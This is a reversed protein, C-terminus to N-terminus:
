RLRLTLNNSNVSATAAVVEIEVAAAELDTPNIVIDVDEAVVAITGIAAVAAEITRAAVM